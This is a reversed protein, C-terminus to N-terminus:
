PLTARGTAPDYRSGAPLVSLRVDAAGLVRSSAPTITAARADFIVAVSEGIVSWRDQADIVLATSEDVGVGILDPHELVLSLLRNNRKRRVFHQDVIANRVLGFGEVTIVNDRAITIYAQTTDPRDGGPHREDGTLMVSSMVAAGASTGGFTAGERFRVRMASDARTGLLAATLRAQDGGGFWIGTASRLRAVVSDTNAQERTLYLNQADVGMARLNAAEEEGSAAGDESAMAFVVINARGAGGALDVFRQRIEPPRPGGGVIVLAGHATAAPPTGVRHSACSAAATLWAVLALSRVDRLVFTMSSALPLVPSHARRNRGLDIREEAGWSSAASKQESM